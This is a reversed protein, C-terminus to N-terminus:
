STAAAGSPSVSRADAAGDYRALIESTSVFRVDPHRAVQEINRVVRDWIRITTTDTRLTFVLVPPPDRRVEALIRVAFLSPHTGLPLQSGWLGRLAPASAQPVLLPGSADPSPDPAPVKAPSSRYPRRPALRYDPPRGIIRGAGTPIIPPLGPEVTLDVKVGAATLRALMEGTLAHDGGRHVRCPRGFSREFAELAMDVCHGSWEPDHDTVWEAAGQDWRWLHTHLGIEDGREELETLVDRYTEVPWTPSGWTEAIQPDLRILWTIPVAAGTFDALRRRVEELRPVLREFAHWPEPHDRDVLRADPEIDICLLVPIEVGRRRYLLRCVKRIPLLRVIPGTVRKLWPHV